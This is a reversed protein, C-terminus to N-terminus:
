TAGVKEIEKNIDVKRRLLDLVRSEDNSREAEQLELRIRAEEARLVDRRIRATRKHVIEEAKDAAVEHNNAAAAYLHRAEEEDLRQALDAGVGEFMARLVTSLADDGLSAPSLQSKTEKLLAENTLLVAVFDRDDQSVPKVKPTLEDKQPATAERRAARQSQERLFKSFESQCTWENLMLERATRKLYEDRRLDDKLRALILFIERAVAARGEITGLRDASMRAYFTVFDAANSVLERFADPGHAKIYDDPDKGDPLTLARVTLGADTLLGVGRLAARIGAPDADFVVVVEPVYRKILAGQLETLATGCPAVVNEIGADFCRMLDFYGEVLIAQKEKRMADRAEHLGYLVRSKKYLANEPSNIYKPGEEGLDRGGFAVVNGAADLIPIMLRNRFFDYLGGRPGRRALGSAELVPDKIGAAHAKDVLMSWDDPAFGLSFRKVTEPRLDRSKLYQRCASGRLADAMCEVFQGRAFRGFEMLQTRLHDEKDDQASVAPLRVGARDALRRLAEVFPLGEYETLFSIADGHKECGFCYFMQRDRSVTFSPTKEQHFPCCAKFRAPGGPKLELYGGIVDVIDNAALVEAVIERSYKM